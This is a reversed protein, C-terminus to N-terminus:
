RLGNPFPGSDRVAREPCIIGPTEQLLKLAEIDPDVSAMDVRSHINFNMLAEQSSRGWVGDAPGAFCQARILEQQLQVIGKQDLYRITQERPINGSEPFAGEVQALCAGNAFFCLPALLQRVFM